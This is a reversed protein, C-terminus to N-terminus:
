FQFYITRFYPRTESQVRVGRNGSIRNKKEFKQGVVRFVFVRFGVFEFFFVSDLFFIGVDGPCDLKKERVGIERNGCDGLLFEFFLSQRLINM